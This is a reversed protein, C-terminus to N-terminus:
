KIILKIKEYPQLDYMLKKFAKTSQGIANKSKTNGILICGKTNKPYNGIHFLIYSRNPVDKIWLHEYKFKPSQEGARKEVCYIGKPISSISRQNNLYPLELTYGYFIGNLYLKGIISEESHLERLLLLNANTSKIEINKMKDILKIIKKLIKCIM